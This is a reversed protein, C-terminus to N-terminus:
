HLYKAKGSQLSVAAESQDKPLLDLAANLEPKRLLDPLTATWTELELKRQQSVSLSRQESFYMDRLVHGSIIALSTVHNQM